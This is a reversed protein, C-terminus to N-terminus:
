VIYELSCCKKRLSLTACLRNRREMRCYLPRSPLIQFVGHGATQSLYREAHTAHLGSLPSRGHQIHPTTHLWEVYEAAIVKLLPNTTDM